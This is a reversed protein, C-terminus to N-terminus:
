NRMSLFNIKGPATAIVFFSGYPSDDSSNVDYTFRNRVVLNNVRYQIYAGAGWVDRKSGKMVGQDKKLNLEVGFRLNDSGGDIYLSHNTNLSTRLPQSLWYTDVGNQVNYLTDYALWRAVFIM